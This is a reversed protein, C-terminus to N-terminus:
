KKANLMKALASKKRRSRNKSVVNNKAAKDVAKQFQISLKKAEEANGANIMDVCKKYLTRVHTKLRLNKASRKKAKRLEKIASQKNPM